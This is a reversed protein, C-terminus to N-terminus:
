MLFQNTKRWKANDGRDTMTSITVSIVPEKTGSSIVHQSTLNVTPGLNLAHHHNDGKETKNETETENISLKVVYLKCVSYNM